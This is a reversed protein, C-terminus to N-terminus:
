VAPRGATATGYGQAGVWRRSTGSSGHGGDEDDIVLLVDPQQDLLREFLEEASGREPAEFGDEDEAIAVGAPEQESM